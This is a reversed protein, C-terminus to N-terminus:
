LRGTRGELVGWGNGPAEQTGQLRTRDGHGSIQGRNRVPNRTGAQHRHRRRTTGQGPLSFVHRRLENYVFNETMHGMITRDTELHRHHLGLIACALGTDTIHAKPTKVLRSARAPRWPPLIDILFINTLLTTKEKHRHRKRHLRGPEDRQFNLGRRISLKPASQQDFMTPNHNWTGRPEQCDRSPFPFFSAM